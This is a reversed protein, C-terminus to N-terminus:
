ACLQLRCKTEKFTRHIDKEALWLIFLVCQLSISCTCCSQLTLFFTILLSILVFPFTIKTIWNNRSLHVSLSFAGQQYTSYAIGIAEKVSVLQFM